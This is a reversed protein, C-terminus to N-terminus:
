GVLHELSYAEVQDPKSSGGFGRLDPAVARYGADVLPGVVHRWSYALEPFGHLLVIAPGSGEDLVNLEVGGVTVLDMSTM